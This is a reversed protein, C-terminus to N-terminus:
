SDEDIEEDYEEDTNTDDYNEFRVALIEDPIINGNEDLMEPHLYSNLDRKSLYDKVLWGIISGVFFFMISILTGLTLAVALM